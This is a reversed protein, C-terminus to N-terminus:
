LHPHLFHHRHLHHLWRCLPLPQQNRRLRHHRCDCHVALPLLPRHQQNQHSQCHKGTTHSDVARMPPLETRLLNLKVFVSDNNYLRQPLWVREHAHSQEWHIRKLDTEHLSHLPPVLASGRKDIIKVILTQTHRALLMAGNENNACLQTRSISWTTACLTGTYKSGM